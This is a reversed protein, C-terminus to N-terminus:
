PRRRNNASPTVTNVTLEAAAAAEARDLEQDGGAGHLAKPAASINATDSASNLLANRVGASRLM